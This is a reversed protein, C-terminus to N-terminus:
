SVASPHEKQLTQQIKHGYTTTKLYILWLYNSLGDSPSSIRKSSIKDFTQTNMLLFIVKQKEKVETKWVKGTWNRMLSEDM